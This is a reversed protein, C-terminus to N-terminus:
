IRVPDGYVSKFLGMKGRAIAKRCTRIEASYSLFFLANGYASRQRKRSCSDTAQCKLETVFELHCNNMMVIM